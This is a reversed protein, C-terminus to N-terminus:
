SQVQVDVVRYEATAWEHGLARLSEIGAECEAESRPPNDGIGHKSWNPSDDTRSEIVYNTMTGTRETTADM